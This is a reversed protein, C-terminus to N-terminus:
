TTTHLGFGPSQEAAERWADRHARYQVWEPRLLDKPVLFRLISPAYEGALAKVMRWGSDLTLLVGLMGFSPAMPDADPATSAELLMFLGMCGLFGATGLVSGRLYRPGGRRGVARQQVALPLCSVLGKLGALVSDWEHDLADRVVRAYARADPPAPVEGGGPPIMRYAFVPGSETAEASLTQTEWQVGAVLARGTQTWALHPLVSRVVASGDEESEVDDPEGLLSWFRERTLPRWASSPRRRMWPRLLEVVLVVCWQGATERLTLASLARGLAFLPILGLGPSTVVLALAIGTGQSRALWSVLLFFVLTETLASSLTARVAYLGYRESLREQDAEPLSGVLPYLFPRFPRARERVAARQREAVIGRVFAGDYVVRGRLIENEQWPRMRYVVRGEEFREGVVEFTAGGLVVATGSCPARLRYSGESRPRLPLRGRSSIEAGAPVGPLLRAEEGDAHHWSSTM